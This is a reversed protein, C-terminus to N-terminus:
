HHHETATATGSAPLVELAPQWEAQGKECQQLVPFKLMGPQGPTQGRLVFEDYYANDIWADRNAARWTIRTVADGDRVLTLTWGAKPMPKAHHFGPPIDIQLATTAAGDCGHMIRFVARYSTDAPAQPVELTVHAQASGAIVALGAAGLILFTKM